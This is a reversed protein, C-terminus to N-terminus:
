LDHASSARRALLQGGLRELQRTALIMRMWAAEADLRLVDLPQSLMTRFADSEEVGEESVGLPGCATISRLGARGFFFPEFAVVAGDSFTIEVRNAYTTGVGIEAAMSVGDAFGTLGVAERMPDGPFQVDTISLTTPDLGLDIFLSLPYCGIDYLTSATIDDIERFTGTPMRPILFTASIRAVDGRRERWLAVLKAYLRTHRHMFAEVVLSGSAAAAARVREAEAATVFAPKEVIVDIGAEVGMMCQVYHASPPTAVIVVEGRSMMGVAREIGHFVPVGPPGGAEQRTILGALEQGNAIIAPLLKTKAHNGLGVIWFREWRGAGKGTM